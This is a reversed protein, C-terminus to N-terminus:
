VGDLRAVKEVFSRADDGTVVDADVVDEGSWLEVVLLHSSM